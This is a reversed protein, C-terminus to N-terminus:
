LSSFVLVHSAGFLHKYTGQDFFMIGFVELQYYLLTMLTHLKVSLGWFTNPEFM